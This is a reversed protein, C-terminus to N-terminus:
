LVQDNDQIQFSSINIIKVAHMFSKATARM